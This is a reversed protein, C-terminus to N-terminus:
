RIQGDLDSAFLPSGWRQWMHGSSWSDAQFHTAVAQLALAEHECDAVAKANIADLPHAAVSDDEKFAQQMKVCREATKIALGHYMRYVAENQPAFHTSNIAGMDT